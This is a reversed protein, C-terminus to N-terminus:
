LAVALAERDLGAIALARPVTGVEAELVGLAIHEARIERDKRAIATKLARNLAVKASAGMRPQRRRRTPPPPRLSVGVADLSAATEAELADVLTHHEVGITESLALLLHEAEVTRAGLAAAEVDVAQLVVRRADKTFREFM